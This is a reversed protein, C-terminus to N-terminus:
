AAWSKSRQQHYRYRECARCHRTGNPRIHTNAQDFAHGRFCQTDRHRSSWPSQGRRVNEKHTVPELHSPNCCRTNRCLHDIQYGEPITGRFLEWMVRHVPYGRGLEQVWIKGYEGKAGIWQWCESDSVPRRINESLRVTLPKLIRRRKMRFEVIQVVAM